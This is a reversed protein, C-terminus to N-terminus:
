SGELLAQRINSNKGNIKGIKLTEKFYLSVQCHEPIM